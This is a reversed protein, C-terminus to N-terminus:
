DVLVAAADWNEFRIRFENRVRILHKQNGKRRPKKSPPITDEINTDQFRYGTISQNLLFERKGQGSSTPLNGFRM